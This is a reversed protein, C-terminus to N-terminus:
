KNPPPKPPPKPPKKIIKKLQSMRAEQDPHM